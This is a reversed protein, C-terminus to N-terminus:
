SVPITHLGHIPQPPTHAHVHRHEEVDTHADANVHRYTQEQAFAPMLALPLRRSPSLWVYVSLRPPPCPSRSLCIRHSTSMSMGRKEIAQILNVLAPPATEPPTFQESLDLVSVASVVVCIVTVRRACLRQFVVPTSCRECPELWSPATPSTSCTYHGPYPSFYATFRSLTSNLIWKSLPASPVSTNQTANIQLSNFRLFGSAQWQPRSM